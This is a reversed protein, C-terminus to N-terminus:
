VRTALSRRPRVVSCTHVDTPALTSLPTPMPSSDHRRSESSELGLLDYPVRQIQEASWAKRSDVQAVRCRTWSESVLGGDGWVGKLNVALQASPTVHGDCGEQSGLLKAEGSRGEDGEPADHHALAVGVLAWTPAVCM